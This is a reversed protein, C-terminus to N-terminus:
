ALARRRYEEARKVPEVLAEATPEHDRGHCCPLGCGCRKRIVGQEILSKIITGDSRPTLDDPERPSM